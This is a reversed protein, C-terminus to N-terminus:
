EIRFLKKWPTPTTQWTKVQVLKRAKQKSLYLNGKMSFHPIYNLQHLWITHIEYLVPDVHIPGTEIYEAVFSLSMGMPLHLSEHCAKQASLTADLSKEPDYVAAYVVGSSDPSEVQGKAM